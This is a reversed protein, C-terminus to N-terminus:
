PTVWIFDGRSGYRAHPSIEDKLDAQSYHGRQLQSVVLLDNRGRARLRDPLGGGYAVHFDGVIVVLVQDPESRLYEAATHAMTDDWLSQSVFLRDLTEEDMGGHGGNGNIAVDFRERYLANGLTFQPPILQLEESTLSEFGSKFIKRTLERPANLGITTGNTTLPARIQRRYESFNNGQWGVQTLFDEETIEDNLYKDIFPQDVFSLFEMGVSVNLGRAALKQIVQMQNEHHDPSDHIEGLLVVQGPKVQNVLDDLSKEALSRGDFLGDGFGETTKAKLVPSFAFLGLLVASVIGKNM